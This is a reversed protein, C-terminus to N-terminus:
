VEYSPMKSLVWQLGLRVRPWGPSRPLINPPEPMRPMMLQREPKRERGVIMRTKKTAQDEKLKPRRRKEHISYLVLAM